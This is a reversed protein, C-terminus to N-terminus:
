AAHGDLEALATSAKTFEPNLKLAKRFCVASNMKDELKKYAIGMNYYIAYLLPTKGELQIAAAKYMKLAGAVDNDRSLKIGANNLFQIIEKEGHTKSLVAVIDDYNGQKVKVGAVVSSSVKNTADVKTLKAMHKEADQLMDAQLCSIGANELVKIHFPNLDAIKNFMDAAEKHKNEMMAITALKHFATVSKPNNKLISQFVDKAAAINSQKLLIDGKLAVAKELTPNLKLSREASDLAMDFINNFFASRADRFLQEPESIAAETTLMHKFKAVASVKQFPKTLVYPLDLEFLLALIDSPISDCVFLHTEGGYNGTARIKQIFVIGNMKPMEMRTIFIDFQQRIIVEYAEEATRFAVVRRFGCEGLVITFFDVEAQTPMLVAVSKSKDLAM